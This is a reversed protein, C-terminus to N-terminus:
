TRSLSSIKGERGSYIWEQGCYDPTSVLVRKNDSEIKLVTSPIKKGKKKLFLNDDVRIANISLSM